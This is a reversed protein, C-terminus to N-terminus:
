GRIINWVSRRELWELHKAAFEYRTEDKALKYRECEDCQREISSVANGLQYACWLFGMFAVLLVEPGWHDTGVFLVSVIAGGFAAAALYKFLQRYESLTESRFRRLTMYTERFVKKSLAGSSTVGPSV